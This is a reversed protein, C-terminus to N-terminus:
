EIDSNTSFNLAMAGYRMKAGFIGRETPQAADISSRANISIRREGPKMNIALNPPTIGCM